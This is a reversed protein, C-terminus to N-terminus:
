FTLVIKCCEDPHNEHLSFAKGVDEFHFTHTIIGAPNVMKKEVWEIAKPFQNCSLRSGMVDLERKTIELQEIETIRSSFTLTVVRGAPLMNELLLPLVSPSGTADIALTIGPLESHKELFDHIGIDGSVFVHDAGLRRARELRPASLDSMICTVGYLKCAQLVVMAIPGAGM